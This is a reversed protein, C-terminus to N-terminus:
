LLPHSALGKEMLREMQQRLSQQFARIESEASDRPPPRIIPSLIHTLPVPKPILTPGFGTVVPVPLKLYKYVSRTFRSERVRYIDDARPCAALVIPCQAQIALKAFGKRGRWVIQYRDKTSRIAERMGGPAVVVLHGQNLLNLGSDPSGPVVGFQHAVQSIVPTKFIARDGLGRIFRGSKEYIRLGLLSIDYTALSHNVVLLCPGTKPIADLNLVRHRHFRAMGRLVTLAHRLTDDGPQEWSSGPNTEM